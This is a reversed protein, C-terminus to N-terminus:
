APSLTWHTAHPKAAQNMERELDHIWADMEAEVKTKHPDEPLGLQITRWRCFYVNSKQASLQSLKEGAAAWPGEKAGVNVGKALEAASYTGLAKGDVSLTYRKEAPLGRVQLTYWNLTEEVPVVGALLTDVGEPVRWPWAEDIRDFRLTGDKWSPSEIRCREGSARVRDDVKLHAASVLAPAHMARLLELAMVVHGAPGPHVCERPPFLHGAKEQHLAHITKLMPHFLDGADIGRQRALALSADAFKELTANYDKLRGPAHEPCIAGNTLLVARAHHEKLQDLISRYGDLFADLEAQQFAHYRGDNMGFCLTVVNPHFVLVDRAMRQAGPPTRDGSWGANIFRLRWDPFRTLCFEEVYRTYLRQQTISDGLFVVTDGDHVAFDAACLVPSLCLVVALTLVVRKM